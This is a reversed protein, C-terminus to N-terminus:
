KDNNQVVKSKILIKANREMVQHRKGFMMWILLILMLIALNIISQYDSLTINGTLSANGSTLSSSFDFLFHILVVMELHGTYLFILAFFIGSIATFCFQYITLSLNQHSLNLFHFLAFILSSGLIAIPIRLRFNRVFDLLLTLIGYRCLFEEGIAAEVTTLLLKWISFSTLKELGNTSVLDSYLFLLTLLVYVTVVVFNSKASDRILSVPDGFHWHKMIKIIVVAYTVAGIAGTTLLTGMWNDNTGYMGFYAPPAIAIQFFYIIWLLRFINSNILKAIQQAYSLIFIVYVGLAILSGLIGVPNVAGIFGLVNGISFSIIFPQALLQIILNITKIISQFKIRADILDLM